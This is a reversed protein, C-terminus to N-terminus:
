RKWPYGKEKIEKQFKDRLSFFKQQTEKAGPARTENNTVWGKLYPEATELWLALQQDNLAHFTVGKEKAMAIIKERSEILDRGYKEVFDDSAETVVKQLEPSMAKWDDLNIVIGYSCIEGSDLLIFHKMVDWLKYGELTWVYTQAADATGRMLAEYVEGYTLKIPVAGLSTWLRAWEGGAFRVKMGKMDAPVLMPKKSTGLQTMGTVFPALLKVNYKALEENMPDHTKFLAQIAKLGVYPDSHSFPPDGVTWLPTKAPHYIGWASGVNATGRGIGEMADAAKLLADSWFFKFNLQGNSRKEIESAWWQVANQRVGKPGAHAAYRLTRSKEAAFASGMTMIFALCTLCLITKFASKRRMM